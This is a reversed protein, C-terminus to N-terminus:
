KWWFLNGLWDKSKVKKVDTDDHYNSDSGYGYGYGYGYGKSYGYYAASRIHVDNIVGYIRRVSGTGVLSNLLGVSSKESFAQRFLYLSLDAYRFLERTESVVGVPPCDLIVVEYSEKIQEMMERFRDRLLLEAPNPPVPGSLLVDLHEYGSPKVAQRWDLDTSLVSTIGRDNTMGFASALKPKRLDMGMLLTRKGSLAFVAALNMSTFTKGEGSAGSTILIVVPFKKEMLFSM